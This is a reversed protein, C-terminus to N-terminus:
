KCLTRRLLLTEKLASMASSMSQRGHLDNREDGCDVFPLSGIHAGVCVIGSRVSDKVERALVDREYQLSYTGAEINMTSINHILAATAKHKGM